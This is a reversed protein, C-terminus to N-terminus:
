LDLFGWTGHRDRLVALLVDAVGHRRLSETWQHSRSLDGGCEVLLTSCGAAPLATWRGPATLYKLRVLTPLEALDPVHALPSGGVATEPDTLLFAWHEHPVARRVADLMRQRVVRDDPGDEDLGVM